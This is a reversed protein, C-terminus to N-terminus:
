MPRGIIKNLTRRILSKFELRFSPVFLLFIWFPLANNLHLLFSQALYLLFSEIGQQELSNSTPRTASLYVLTISYPTTTILYVVVEILSIRILGRDRKRVMGTTTSFIQMPRVRTRIRNLSLTILVSFMIMIAPPFLGTTILNYITYSMAFATNHMGCSGNEISELVPIFLTALLWMIVVSPILRIAVQYQSFSRVRSHTSCIAYRDVCALIIFSRMMQNPAHRFYHQLKCFISSSNRLDTQNLAIIIPILSINLSTLQCITSALLYMSCPNRRHTPQSFFLINLVLGINGLVLYTTMGYRTLAEQAIDLSSM